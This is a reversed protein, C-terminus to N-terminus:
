QVIFLLASHRGTARMVYVGPNIGRMSIQNHGPFIEFQQVPVGVISYLTVSAGQRHHVDIVVNEGRNVPNPYVSWDSGLQETGGASSTVLTCYATDPNLEIFGKPSLDKGDFAPDDIAYRQFRFVHNNFVQTGQVAPSGNQLPNVYEWVIERDHPTLEFAYGIGGALILYNGNPLVQFSSLSPSYLKHMEPHTVSVDFNEPLWRNNHKVFEYTSTDYVPTFINVSSYQPHVRNNFVGLSGYHPHDEPVNFIWRVDHPFFLRQDGANGQGYVQPNGWRFLLDGGRGWRGGTHGAAEETTTSHDIIWAESFHPSSIAILDFEPHYSVCNLHLWDAVGGVFIHNIDIRGPNDRVSGYNSKDPDFEQVLHDWAHWKWVISDTHPDIEFIMDPWLTNGLLLAPDRGAAIAEERSKVEWAILLINGNPMIDFDHHLRATDNNLTFSWLLDNHWSRIEITEGGGGRWIPDGISANRRVGKVLNGNPLLRAANGPQTQPTGPWSHVIQGCVDLLYVHPQNYPYFLNYGAFSREHDISVLGITRGGQACLSTHVVLLVWYAINYRVIM